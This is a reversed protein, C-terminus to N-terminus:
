GYESESYHGPTWVGASEVTQAAAAPGYPPFIRALAEGLADLPHDWMGDKKYTEKPAGDTGHRDWVARELADILYPCDRSIFLRNERLLQKILNVRERPSHREDQKQVSIGNRTLVAIDSEGTQLNTGAGAPDVYAPAESTTIGAEKDRTIIAKAFEDTTHKEAHLEGYVFVTRKGQVEMWYCPAHHYGFDIGRYSPFPSDPTRTGEVTHIDWQFEDFVAGPERASWDGQLLQRKTLPDLEALQREYTVRDVSPNDELTAPVFVREDPNSPNEDDPDIVKEILRKRVWVHGRGGPNSAARMRLPVKSLPGASPKRIRSFLYRYDAEDFQTLEDFGVFQLEAGQYRYKDTSYQLYGFTLSAGSPFTFKKEVENWHADTGILWSKARDMIAGPLALDAYTKRLLLAAYGPVHVYQLAAMLLADSKGGGAAGGYLAEKCDLDLFIRQKAHPEHPVYREFVVRPDVTPPDFLDAAVLWPDAQALSSPSTVVSM